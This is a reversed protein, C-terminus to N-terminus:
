ATTKAAAATGLAPDKGLATRLNKYYDGLTTTVAANVVATPIWGKLDSHIGYYLRVGTGTPSPEVHWVTGALPPPLACCVTLDVHLRREHLVLV